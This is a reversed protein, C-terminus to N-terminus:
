TVREPELAASLIFMVPVNWRKGPPLLCMINELASLKVADEHGGKEEHEDHGGEENRIEHESPNHDSFLGKSNSKRGVIIGFVLFIIAVILLIKNKTILSVIKNKM